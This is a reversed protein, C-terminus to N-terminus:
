EPPLEQGAEDAELEKKAYQAFERLVEAAQEAHDMNRLPAQRALAIMNGFIEKKNM